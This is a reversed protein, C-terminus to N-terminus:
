LKQLMRPFCATMCVNSCWIRSYGRTSVLLFTLTLAAPLSRLHNPSLLKATPTEWKLVCAILGRRKSNDRTRQSPCWSALAYFVRQYPSLCLMILWISWPIHKILMQGWCCPLGHFSRQNALGPSVREGFMRQSRSYANTLDRVLQELFENMWKKWSFYICMRSQHNFDITKTKSYYVM